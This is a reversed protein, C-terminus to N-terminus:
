ECTASPPWCTSIAVRMLRSSRREAGLNAKAEFISPLLGSDPKGRVDEGAEGLLGGGHALVVGRDGKGYVDGYVLGGDQTPFSVREQAAILGALVLAAAMIATSVAM